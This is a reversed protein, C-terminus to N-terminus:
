PLRLKLIILWDRWRVMTRRYNVLNCWFFNFCVFFSSMNKEFLKTLRSVRSEVKFFKYRKCYYNRRFYVSQAVLYFSFFHFIKSKELIASQGLHFLIACEKKSVRICFINNTHREFRQKSCMIHMFSYFKLAETCTHATNLLRCLM